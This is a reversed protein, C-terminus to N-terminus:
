VCEGPQSHCMQACMFMGVGLEPCEACALIGWVHLSGGRTHACSARLHVDGARSASGRCGGSSESTCSVKGTGRLAPVRGHLSHLHHHGDQSQAPLRPTPSSSWVQPEAVRSGSEPGSAARHQRTRVSFWSSQRARPKQAPCQPQECGRSGEDADLDGHCGGGFRGTGTARTVAGGVGAQRGSRFRSRSARSRVVCLVAPRHPGLPPHVRCGRPSPGVSPDPTPSFFLSLGCTIKERGM